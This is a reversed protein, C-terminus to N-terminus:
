VEGASGLAREVTAVIKDLEFPKRIFPIDPQAVSDVIGSMLVIPLLHGRQRLRRVLDIGDLHPMMVDALVLDFDDQEVLELATQGNSACRTEFGAEALVRAIVECFTTEDDVVLIQKPLEEREM